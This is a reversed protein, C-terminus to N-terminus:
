FLPSWFGRQEGTHQPPTPFWSSLFGRNPQVVNIPDVYPGYGVLVDSHWFYDSVLKMYKYPGRVRGPFEDPSADVLRLHGNSLEFIKERLTRLYGPYKFSLMSSFLVAQPDFHNLDPERRHLLDELIQDYIQIYSEPAGEVGWDISGPAPMAPMVQAKLLQGCYTKFSDSFAAAAQAHTAMFVLSLTLVFRIFKRM